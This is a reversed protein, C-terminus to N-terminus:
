KSDHLLNISIYPWPLITPLEAAERCYTGGDWMEINRKQQVGKAHIGLQVGSNYKKQVGLISM